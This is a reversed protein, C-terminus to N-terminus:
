QKPEASPESGETQPHLPRQVESPAKHQETSHHELTHHEAKHHAIVSGEAHHKNVSGEKGSSHKEFVRRLFLPLWAALAGLLFPFFITDRLRQWYDVKIYQVVSTANANQAVSLLENNIKSVTEDCVKSDPEFICIHLGVKTQSNSNMVAAENYYWNLNIYFGGILIV